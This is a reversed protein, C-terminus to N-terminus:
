LYVRVKTASVKISDSMLTLNRCVQQFKVAPITINAAYDTDPIALAEDSIEMLKLKYEASENGSQAEFLFTLIDTGEEAKLTVKDDHNACKLIRTMLGLNVGLAHNRECAFHEFGDRRLEVAVLAAHSTDMAQMRIGEPSIDLNADTVLDKVAETLKRLLDSQALTAEIM